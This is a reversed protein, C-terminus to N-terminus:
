ATPWGAIPWRPRICAAIRAHPGPAAMECPEAAESCPNVSRLGLRVWTIPGPSRPRPNEPMRQCRTGAGWLSSTVTRSPMGHVVTERVM